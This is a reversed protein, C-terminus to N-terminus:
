CEVRPVSQRRAEPATEGDHCFSPFHDDLRQADPVIRSSWLSSIPPEAASEDEPLWGGIEAELVIRLAVSLGSMRILPHSSM